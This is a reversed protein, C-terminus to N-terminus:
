LDTYKAPRRGLVQCKEREIHIFQFNEFCVYFHANKTQRETIVIRQTMENRKVQLEKYLSGHIRINVNLARSILLVIFRFM